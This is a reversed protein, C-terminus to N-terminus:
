SAIVFSAQEMISSHHKSLISICLVAIRYTGLECILDKDQRLRKEGSRPLKGSAVLFLIV